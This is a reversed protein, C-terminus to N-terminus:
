PKREFAGMDSHAGQPRATGDFDTTLTAAPDAADIAPSGPLLHYDATAVSQFLPDMGLILHDSSLPM